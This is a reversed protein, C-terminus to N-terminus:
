RGNLVAQGGRQDGMAVLEACLAEVSAYDIKLKTTLRNSLDYLDALEIVAELLGTRGTQTVSFSLVRDAGESSNYGWNWSVPENLPYQSLAAVIDPVESLNSWFFAAGSFRAGEIDFWLKGVEDNPDPEYRITLTAMSSTSRSVDIDALLYIAQARPRGSHPAHQGAGEGASVPQDATRGDSSGILAAFLPPHHIATSESVTRTGAM